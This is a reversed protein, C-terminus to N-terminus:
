GWWAAERTCEVRWIARRHWPSGAPPTRSASIASSATHRPPDSHPRRTCAQDEPLIERAASGGRKGSFMDAIIKDLDGHSYDDPIAPSPATTLWLAVPQSPAASPPPPLPASILPPLRACPPRARVSRHGDHFGAATVGSSRRAPPLLPANEPVSESGGGGVASGVVVRPMVANSAMSRGRAADMRPGVGHQSLRGIQSPVPRRPPPPLRDCVLM